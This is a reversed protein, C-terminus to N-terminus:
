EGGKKKGVQDLVRVLNGMMTSLLGVLNRAPGQLGGLLRALLVERPPLAALGAIEEASLFRKLELLGGRIVLANNEKAFQTLVKALAVADGRTAAIANPGRLLQLFEEGAGEMVRKVIRNKVVNLVGQQEALRSRLKTMENANLGHYGTVVMLTSGRYREEMEKAIYTKEIRM